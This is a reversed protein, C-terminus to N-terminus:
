ENDSFLYRIIRGGSSDPLELANGYFSTLLACIKGRDVDPGTPNGLLDVDEGYTERLGQYVILLDAQVDEATPVDRRRSGASRIVEALAALEAMRTDEDVYSRLDIAPGGQPYVFRYCLEADHAQLQRLEDLFVSVYQAAAADDAHPLYRNVLGSLLARAHAVTEDHSRGAVLSERLSGAVRDFEIRDFERLAQYVPIGAIAQQLEEDIRRKNLPELIYYRGATHLAAIFVLSLILFLIPREKPRRVILFAAAAGIGGASGAVAVASWDVSV